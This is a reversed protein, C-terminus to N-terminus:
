PSDLPERRFRPLRAWLRGRHRPRTLPTMRGARISARQDSVKGSLAGSQGDCGCPWLDKSICLNDLSGICIFACNFRGVPHSHSLLYDRIKAADKVASDVRPLTV